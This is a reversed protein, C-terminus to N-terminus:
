LWKKQITNEDRKISKDTKYRNIWRSLSQKKCEFIECVLDMSIKNKLYHKVASIKYDGTKHKNM